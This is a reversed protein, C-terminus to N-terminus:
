AKFGYMGEPGRSVSFNSFTVKGTSDSIQKNNKAEM